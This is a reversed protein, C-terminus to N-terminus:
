RALKRGLLAAKKLMKEPIDMNDENVEDILLQGISHAGLMNALYKLANLTDKFTRGMRAPASCASVLVVKRGVGPTRIQPKRIGWPWYVYGVCREMFMRTIATINNFNVPAGIVLSYATEINLLLVEMDDDLICKGREAGPTQTCERCNTCFRIHKDVLYIKEVEAGNQSAASLIESIAKDVVGGKRYSGVIGIVKKNNDM